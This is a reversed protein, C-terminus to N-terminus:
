FVIGPIAPESYVPIAARSSIVIYPAGPASADYPEARLKSIRVDVLNKGSRGNPQARLINKPTKPTKTSVLVWGVHVWGASASARESADFM